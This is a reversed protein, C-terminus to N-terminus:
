VKEATKSMALHVGDRSSAVLNVARWVPYKSGVRGLM